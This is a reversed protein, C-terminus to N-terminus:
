ESAVPVTVAGSDNGIVLQTAVSSPFTTLNLPQAELKFEYRGGKLPSISAQVRAGNLTGAFKYRGRSDVRFSGAPLTFTLPGIHVKVVETLPAIGNNEAGLTFLMKFELEDDLAAPGREVEVKASVTTFPVPLVHVSFGCTDQLGAGDTATCTVATTGLPFTAGSAPTCSTILTSCNDTATPSFNVIAGSGSTATVTRDTPCTIAPAQTDTVTVTATCQSSLAGDSVTLTVNTNGVPYPGAPSQTLTLTDGDPDSSGNDISASTAACANSSAPITVPQCRAVPPHNTPAPPDFLGLEQIPTIDIGVATLEEPSLIALPPPDPDVAGRLTVEVEPNDPHPTVVPDVFAFGNLQARAEITMLIASFTPVNLTIKKGFVLPGSGKTRELEQGNGLIHLDNADIGGGQLTRYHAGSVQLLPPQLMSVWKTVVKTGDPEERGQGSGTYQGVEVYFRSLGDFFTGFDGFPTGTTAVADFEVVVKVRDRGLPDYAAFDMSTTAGFGSPARDNWSPSKAQAMAMYGRRNNLNATAQAITLGGGGNSAVSIARRGTLTPTNKFDADFQRDNGAHTAVAPPGFNFFIQAGVEPASALGAALVFGAAAISLFQHIRARRPKEGRAQKGPLVERRARRWGTLSASRAGIDRAHGKKRKTEKSRM